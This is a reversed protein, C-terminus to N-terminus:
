TSSMRRDFFLSTQMGGFKPQPDPATSAAFDGIVPGPACYSVDSCTPDPANNLEIACRMFSHRFM